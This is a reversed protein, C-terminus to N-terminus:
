KAELGELWNEILLGPVRQFERLNNSVLTLGESRAHGAIHTDNSSIPTGLKELYKRISGYHAAAKVGYELVVIRSCVADISAMALAPDRSKESGFFLESMCITSTAIKGFNREFHAKIVSPRKNIIYILTNTDLLFTLM